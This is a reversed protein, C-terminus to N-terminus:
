VMQLRSSDGGLVHLMLGTLSYYLHRIILDLIFLGGHCFQLVELNGSSPDATPTIKMGGGFFKANGICLATVKHFVEWEGGNVQLVAHPLRYIASGHLYCTMM